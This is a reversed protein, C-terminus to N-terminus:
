EVSTGEQAAKWQRHGQVCGITFAGLALVVFAALVFPLILAVLVSLVIFTAVPMGRIAFLGVLVIALATLVDHVSSRQQTPSALKVPLRDPRDM